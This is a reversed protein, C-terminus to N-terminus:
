LDLSMGGGVNFPSYPISRDKNNLNHLYLGGIKINFKLKEFGFKLIAMPEIMFYNDRYRINRYQFFNGRNEFGDFSFSSKMFGSKLGFSGELHKGMAGINLQTFFSQYNGYARDDFRVFGYQTYGHGYGAGGYLELVMRKALNDYYGVALQGYDHRGNSLASLNGGLQIALKDTMGYAINGSVAGKVLSLGGDVRLDNKEHILPIDLLQPQTTVCSLFLFSSLLLYFYAQYNNKM